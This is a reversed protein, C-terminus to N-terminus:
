WSATLCLVACWTYSQLFEVKGNYLAHQIKYHIECRSSVVISFHDLNLKTASWDEAIKTECRIWPAM